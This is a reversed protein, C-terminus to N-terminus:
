ESNATLLALQNDEFLKTAEHQSICIYDLISRIYLIIKATEAATVSEAETSLLFVTTQFRTKHYIYGGAIKVSIGTVPQRHSTEGYYDSGLIAWM